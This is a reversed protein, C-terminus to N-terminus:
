ISSRTSRSFSKRETNQRVRFWYEYYEHFGLGRYLNGAPENEKVVQLYAKTVGRLAAEELIMTVIQRAIGRRRYSPHVHIAYVGVYNRDLIGLGTGIFRSGDRVQICLTEKPIARYMSPVVSKHMVNTTNKLAFLASIWADPIFPSCTLRVGGYERHIMEGFRASASPDRLDTIDDRLMVVTRHQVMYGRKELLGDFSPDVLPSIKFIAPTGWKTYEEECYRIKQDVPITSAGVQEVCNTRHTYFYSFRLLWGDYYQIQHSPWANLSLDEITKIQNEM